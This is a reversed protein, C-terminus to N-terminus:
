EEEKDKRGGQIVCRLCLTKESLYGCDDANDDSEVTAVLSHNRVRVMHIEDCARLLATVCRRGKENEYEWRYVWLPMEEEGNKDKSVFDLIM